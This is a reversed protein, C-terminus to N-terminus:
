KLKIKMKFTKPVHRITLSVRTSRHLEVGSSLPEGLRACNLVRELDPVTDQNRQSIGHLYRCVYMNHVTIVWSM